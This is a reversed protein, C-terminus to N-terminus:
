TEARGHKWYGRVVADRRAFGREDFLYKRIRQVAGAEGAAWVRTGPEIGAVRVADVLASGPAAGAIAHVWTATAGPHTPLPVEGDSAAVEIIVTIGVDPAFTELLQSMAPIATEDGAVLMDNAATADYGRGPGSVAVEFGPRVSRAWTSLRGGDHLVVDVDLENARVYRPTLTRLLPRTGAASLFENGNWAPIELAAGPSPLLLRVSAAPEPVPFGDLAPGSLTIRRLRPGLDAASAVAVRRFPPPERRIPSRTTM